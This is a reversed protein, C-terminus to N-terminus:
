GPQNRTADHEELYLAAAHVLEANDKFCGLGNNCGGCLLSRPRGTIHDHDLCLPMRRKGDKKMRPEPQKCIRCVGGQSAFMADYEAVTVGYLRKLNASHQMRSGHPTTHRKRTYSAKCAKCRSSRYRRGMEKCANWSFESYPLFRKCGGCIKGDGFPERDIEAHRDGKTRPFRRPRPIIEGFLDHTSNISQDQM